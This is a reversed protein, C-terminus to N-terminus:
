GEGPGDIVQGTVGLSAPGLLHVYRHSLAEPPLIQEAPEGPHSKRRLASNVPGPAFVNVRIRGGSELEAALMRTLGELAIKAIGYAGWYAGGRRASTDTTFVVSADEARAMLPLLARTLLHASTLNIRMLREWQVANVDALPGPIGLEAASHLLGHLAGFEEQLIDALEQYDVETAGALDLPYLAPQPHGAAVIADHLRGLRDVAKDLLVLRAGQAACARAATGGLSGGAGTILIIRGALVHGEALTINM